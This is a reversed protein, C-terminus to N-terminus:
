DNQGLEQPWVVATLEDETVLNYRFFTSMTKHGTIAMVKLYDNNNALRLNNTACHRLDHFTWNELGAKRCATRFARKIDDFPKGEYLFVRNTHIGRPIEKFLKKIPPPIPIDRGVKTKTRKPLRIFGNALDVEDWTLALIESKRMGLLFAVLVVPRLHPACVELLRSFEEPKMVRQRINNEPLKAVAEIPNSKVKGHRLARTFMARLCAVERNVTAPRVRQGPHRPSWEALRTTQYDDITGPKISNVPTSAGIIRLLNKISSFEKRYTRKAQVDQLEKYWDSLHKLTLRIGPDKDIFRGETRAKLVERLRQEAAAKSPGIRERRRKGTDDYYEIWYSKGGIKKLGVGCKCQDAKPSNRKKCQPCEVLIGM